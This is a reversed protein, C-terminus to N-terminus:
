NKVKATFSNISCCKARNSSFTVSTTFRSHVSPLWHAATPLAALSPQQSYPTTSTCNAEKRNNNSLPDAPEGGVAAMWGERERNAKGLPEMHFLVDAGASLPSLCTRPLVRAHANLKEGGSRHDLAARHRSGRKVQDLADM